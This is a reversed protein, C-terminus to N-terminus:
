QAARAEVGGGPAGEARISEKSGPTVPARRDQGLQRELDAVKLGVLQKHEQVANLEERLATLSERPM